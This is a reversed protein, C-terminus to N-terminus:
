KVIKNSTRKRTKGKTTKRRRVNVYGGYHALMLAVADAVNDNQITINLIKSVGICVDKKQANGKIGIFKRVSTCSYALLIQKSYKYWKYTIIGRAQALFLLANFYGFYLDEVILLDIKFKEFLKEVEDATYIIKEVTTLTTKPKITAYKEIKNNIGLCWGTEKTSIDLCLIRM